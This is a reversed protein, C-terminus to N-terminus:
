QSTWGGDIVLSHGTVFSAKDSCLWLVGEAIEEPRGIRGMPEQNRLQSLAKEDSHTFRDIMPTQIVGPCIANVRINQGAHELAATETLGIIGHKSAVYPAMGPFGVKGAISACNVITGKGQKLMLPIEYKMCLWVGKLNVDIVNQWNELTCDETPAPLGEIGANNFACDIRGFRKVGNEVLAKVDKEQSVDCRQFLSPIGYERSLNEALEEGEMKVDALILAMGERAFLSATARGIGSSAGTILAVKIGSDDKKQFEKVM